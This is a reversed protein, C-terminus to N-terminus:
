DTAKFVKNALSKKSIFCATLFGAYVAGGLGCTIVDQGTLFCNKIPTQIRLMDQKFRKPTHEIGYIEGHQYNTFHKTSLPTSLEYTDIKGELHPLFDYMRNLMKQSIEEKYAEYEEGRKKWKKDEWKAFQDYEGISILEITSRGPYRDLWSPDKASPFSIYLVPFESNNPDKVYKQINEDHNPNEPYIWYNSKPLKLEESTHKLGVYLCIHSYSPTINKMLDNYKKTEELGNLLSHYTNYIGAGSIVKPAKIITGDAMEVGVAKGKEVLIRNVRANIYVEGGARYIPLKMTEFIQSSGGTPYSGGNMYHKTLMAHMMFSSKSPPLGYDGFQGTLVGILKENKTIGDLVQRTTQSYFTKAKRGIFGAVFNPVFKPLARQAFLGKSNHSAARVLHVYKDIAEQDERAPFYEKMRAKFNDEGKIYDFEERGFIIKDYVEGMEAWKLQDDTLYRFIRNLMKGERHVEGVYHLGVDWEYDRRKFTHM